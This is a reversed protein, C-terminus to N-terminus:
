TAGRLVVVADAAVVGEPTAFLPNVDIESIRDAHDAALWSLRSLVQAIAMRDVPASGRFGDLLAAGRIEAMMELAEDVGFPAYRYTVDRLAEAFIGGLGFLVTPGFCADNVTGAILELGVAMTQVLVGELRADPRYALAAARVAQAASKLEGIDRVNLRVARAETKHAIDPSNIKVAVPFPMPAADLAAVADFSLLAEGVPPIGYAALLQKSAHESLTGAAQALALAQRAVHREALPRTNRRRRAFESLMGAAYTARLPSEHWSIREDEFVARAPLEADPGFAVFVPKQTGHAIAALERAHEPTSTSARSRVIVQDIADDDLTARLANNSVSSGDASRQGSLDAPNAVSAFGPLLARLRTLTADSLTPLTLGYTECHDAMFVGTGGSATLIAARNGVPLRGARFARWLDVVDDYDDVEIWAGRRFAARYLEHATTLQATHSAAARRGAESRGAKWVLLPKGLALAREGITVLRRGNDVGELFTTVMAVDDREILYEIFDLATFDISNGTSVVYNCGVGARQASMMMTFGFGGSQTVMAIPARLLDPYQFGAGFGAHIRRVLNLVGQCNPGVIRVGSRAATEKLEQELALGAAGVERFGASLVIAVRIGAAACQEVAATVHTANLAIVAIDCPKPVAAPDPYCRIGDIDRYKPNVPYIGGEYGFERLYHLPQGGARGKDPTAGIIAISRPSFVVDLDARNRSQQTDSM